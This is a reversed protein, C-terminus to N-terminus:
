EVLGVSYDNNSVVFQNRDRNRRRRAPDVIGLLLNM